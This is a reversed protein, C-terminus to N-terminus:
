EEPLEEPFKMIDTEKGVLRSFLTKNDNSIERALINGLADSHDNLIKSLITKNEKSLVIREETLVVDCITMWTYTFGHILTRISIVGGILSFEDKPQPEMQLREFFNHFRHEIKVAYYNLDIISSLKIKPPDKGFLLNLYDNFPEYDPLFVNHPLMPILLILLINKKLGGFKELRKDKYIINFMEKISEGFAYKYIYTQIFAPTDPIIPSLLLDDFTHRGIFNLSEYRNKFFTKLVHFKKILTIQIINEVNRVIPLPIIYESSIRPEEGRLLSNITILCDTYVISLLYFDFINQLHVFRKIKSSGLPVAISQEPEFSSQPDCLNRITFYVSKYIEGNSKRMTKFPTNFIEQHQKEILETVNENASTVLKLRIMHLYSLFKPDDKLKPDDKSIKELENSINEFSQIIFREFKIADYDFPLYIIMCLQEGKKIIEKEEEEM